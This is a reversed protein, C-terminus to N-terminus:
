GLSSLNIYTYNMIQSLMGLIQMIGWINLSGQPEIGSWQPGIGSWEPGIESWEPGIESGELDRTRVYGKFKWNKFTQVIM